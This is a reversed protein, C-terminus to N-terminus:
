IFIFKYTSNDMVPDRLSFFKYNKKQLTKVIKIEDEFLSNKGFM